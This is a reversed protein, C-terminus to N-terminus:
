AELFDQWEFCHIPGKLEQDVLEDHILQVEWYVELGHSKSIQQPPYLARFMPEFAIEGDLYREVPEGAPILPISRSYLIVSRVPETFSVTRVKTGSGRKYQGKEMNCAVVRLRIERLTVRSRGNIIRSADFADHRQIRGPMNCINLTMYTRLQKRIAYWVAAGAAGSLMLSKQLPSESDGDSDRHSYLMTEEEPSFQDRIGIWSNVGIVILGALLLLVTMLRNRPPIAQLNTLLEFTDRPDITGKADDSVQPPKGALAIMEEESLTTNMLLSDVELESQLTISIHQGAYSYSKLSSRHIEIENRSELWPISRSFVVDSANAGRSDHVDVTRRLRLEATRGLLSDDHVVIACRVVNSSDGFQYDVSVRHSGSM